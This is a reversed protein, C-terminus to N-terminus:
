PYNVRPRNSSKLILNYRTNRLELMAIAKACVCVQVCVYVGLMMEERTKAWNDRHETTMIGVPHECTEPAAELVKHIEAMIHSPPALALTGDPCEYIV